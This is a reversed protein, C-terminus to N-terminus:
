SLQTLSATWGFVNIEACVNFRVFKEECLFISNMPLFYRIFCYLFLHVKSIEVGYIPSTTMSVLFLLPPQLLIDGCHNVWIIQFETLTIKRVHTTIQILCIEIWAVRQCPLWWFVTVMTVSWILYCHLITKLEKWLGDRKFICHFNPQTRIM